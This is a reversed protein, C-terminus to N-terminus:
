KKKQTLTVTFVIIMIYFNSQFNDKLHVICFTEMQKNTSLTLLTYINLILEPAKNKWGVNHM